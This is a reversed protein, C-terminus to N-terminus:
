HRVFIGSGLIDLGLPLQFQSFSKGLAAEYQKANLKGLADLMRRRTSSNVGEPNSLFLVPDGSARLSVGQYKSPLFGAGWLRNYLAQAEKRGTWTPTMVVFSPLNANESGMGYALWSGLSAKGPLQHGTCIYTIAPDHNIAETHMSRILAFEDTMGAHYPLLESVEMGGLIAVDVRGTENYIKEFHQPYEQYRVSPRDSSWIGLGCAAVILVAVVLRLWPFSRPDEPSM